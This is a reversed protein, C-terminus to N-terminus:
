PLIWLGAVSAISQSVIARRDWPPRQFLAPAPSGARFYGVAYQCDCPHQISTYYPLLLSNAVFRGGSVIPQLYGWRVHGHRELMRDEFYLPHSFNGSAAWTRLMPSWVISRQLSSEPLPMRPTQSPKRFTDPRRGNGIQETDTTATIMAPMVFQGDVIRPLQKSFQDVPDDDRNDKRDNGRRQRPDDPSDLDLDDGTKSDREGLSDERDGLSESLSDLDLSPLDGDLQLRREIAELDPGLDDLSDLQLRKELADLDSMDLESIDPLGDQGDASSRQSDDGDGLQHFSALM